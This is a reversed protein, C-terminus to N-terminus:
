SQFLMLYQNQPPTEKCIECQFSPESELYLIDDSLDGVTQRHDLFGIIEGKTIMNKIVKAVQTFDFNIEKEIEIILKEM